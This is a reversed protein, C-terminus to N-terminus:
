RSRNAGYLNCSALGIGNFPADMVCQKKVKSKSWNARDRSMVADGKAAGKLNAVTEKTWNKLSQPRTENLLGAASKPQLSKWSM